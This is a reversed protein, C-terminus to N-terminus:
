WAKAASGGGLWSEKAERKGATFGCVVGKEARQVVTLGLDCVGHARWSMDVSPRLTRLSLSPHSVSHRQPFVRTRFM